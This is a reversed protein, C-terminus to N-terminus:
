GYCFKLISCTNIYFLFTPYLGILLFIRINFTFKLILKLCVFIWSRINIPYYFLTELLSFVSLNSKKWDLLFFITGTEVSSKGILVHSPWTSTKWCFTSFVTNQSLSCHKTWWFIFVNQSLFVPLFPGFLADSIFSLTILLHPLAPTVSYLCLESSVCPSTFFFIPSPSFLMFVNRPTNTCPFLRGHDPDM